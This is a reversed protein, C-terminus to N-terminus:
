HGLGGRDQGHSATCNYAARTAGLQAAQQELAELRGLMDFQEVAQLSKELLSNAAAIEAGPKGCNLNRLLCMVASLSAGQMVGLAQELIQARAQRYATCFSPERLWARLTREGIKAKRAAEAFTGTTLLAGIAAERKRSSPQGRPM